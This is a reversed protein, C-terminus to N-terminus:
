LGTFAREIEKLNGIGRLSFESLFLFSQHKDPWKTEFIFITEVGLGAM